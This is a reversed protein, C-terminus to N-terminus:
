GTRQTAVLLTDGGSNLVLPCWISKDDLPRSGVSPQWRAGGTDWSFGPSAVKSSRPLLPEVVRPRRLFESFAIRTPSGLFATM